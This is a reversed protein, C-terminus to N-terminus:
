GLHQGTLKLHSPLIQIGGAIDREIIQAVPKERSRVRFASSQFFGGQTSHHVSFNVPGSPHHRHGAGEGVPRRMGGPLLGCENKIVIGPFMKHGADRNFLARTGKMHRLCGGDQKKKIGQDAGLEPPMELGSGIRLQLQMIHRINLVDNQILHPHSKCPCPAVGGPIIQGQRNALAIIRKQAVPVEEFPLQLSTLLRKASTCFPCYNTSYVTIGDPAPAIM